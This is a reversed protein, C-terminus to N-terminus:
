QRAVHAPGNLMEIIKQNQSCEPVNQDTKETVKQVPQNKPKTNNKGKETKKM